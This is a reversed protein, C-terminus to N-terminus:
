AMEETGDEVKKEPLEPVHSEDPVPHNILLKLLHELCIHCPLHKFLEAEVLDAQAIGLGDEFGDTEDRWHDTILLTAGFHQAELHVQFVVTAEMQGNVKVQDKALTASNHLYARDEYPLTSDCRCKAKAM